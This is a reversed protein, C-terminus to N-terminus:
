NKAPPCAGRKEERAGAKLLECLNDYTKGDCGCVPAKKKSCEAPVKVCVGALDGVACKGIPYKCAEGDPCKLAGIGGCVQPKTTTTTTTTKKTDTTTTSQAHGAGAALVLLAFCMCACILTRRVM